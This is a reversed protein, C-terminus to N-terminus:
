AKAATSSANRSFKADRPSTPAATHTITSPRM